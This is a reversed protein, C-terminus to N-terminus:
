LTTKKVLILAHVATLRSSNSYYRYTCQQTSTSLMMCVLVAGSSSPVSPGVLSSLGLKSSAATRGEVSIGSEAQTTMTIIHQM